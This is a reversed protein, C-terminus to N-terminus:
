WGQAWHYDWPAKLIGSIVLAAMGATYIVSAAFAAKWKLRRINGNALGGIGTHMLLLGIINTIWYAGILAPLFLSKSVLSFPFALVYAIPINLFVDNWWSFPSLLFGLVGILTYKIRGPM